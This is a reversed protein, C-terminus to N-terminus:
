CYLSFINRPVLKQEINYVNLLSFKFEHLCLIHLFNPWNAYNNLYM